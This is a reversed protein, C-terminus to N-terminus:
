TQHILYVFMGLQLASVHVQVLLQSGSVCESILVGNAKEIEV